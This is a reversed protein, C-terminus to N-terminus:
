AFYRCDDDASRVFYGFIKGHGLRSQRRLLGRDRRLNRRSYPQCACRCNCFGFSFLAGAALCTFIDQGEENAGFLFSPKEIGDKLVYSHNFIYYEYYNVRVEYGADNPRAYEYEIGNEGDGAIRLSKYNDNSVQGVTHTKYDPCM